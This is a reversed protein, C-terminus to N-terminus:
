RDAHRRSFVELEARQRRVDESVEAAKDRTTRSLERTQDILQPVASAFDDAPYYEAELVALVDRTTAFLGRRVTPRGSKRVVSLDWGMGPVIRLVGNDGNPLDVVYTHVQGHSFRGSPKLTLRM